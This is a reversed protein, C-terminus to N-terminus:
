VDAALRELRAMDLVRAAHRGPFAVIGQKTLLATARSVAELSIGLFGAIDSRSMPLPILDKPTKPKVHKRLMMLFMAVRGAADRRGMLITRRQAERLEHTVKCLFQYQLGADRQLVTNLEQLPIRYCVSPVVAQATNMYRGSEALGFMDDPFLFLMIRRTGGPLERYTKVTGQACFYLAAAIADAHYLIRGAPVVVKTSLAALEQRQSSTLLKVTDGTGTAMFPAAKLSPGRETVPRRKM